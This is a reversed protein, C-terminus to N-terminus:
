NQRFALLHKPPQQPVTVEELMPQAIVHQLLQVGLALTKAQRPRRGNPQRMTNTTRGRQKGFHLDDEPLLVGSTKIPSTAM